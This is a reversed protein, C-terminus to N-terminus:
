PMFTISYRGAVRIMEAVDLPQEPQNAAANGGVAQGLDRFYNEFGGPTIYNLFRVHRSMVKFAHAVKRPLFASAGAELTLEEQGRRVKLEGEIVYFMEDENHHVHLPPEAGPGGEMELLAFQGATDASDAHVTILGGRFRILRAPKSDSPKNEFSLLATGM